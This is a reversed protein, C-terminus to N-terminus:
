PHIEEEAPQPNKTSIKTTKNPSTTHKEEKSDVYISAIVGLILTGVIILLSMYVPIYFIDELVMKLGVFGLVITLSHRLYRFKDLIAALAFYLSRLGLIAFINSTFVIFGDTTVALIAPISDLAFMLDTSEIIILVLFLPTMSKLKGNERLFFKDGHYSECVPFYARVMKLLRNNEIEVEQEGSEVYMKYATYILFAGFVYSLWSFQHILAVGVGILTGRMILAGLIGWFLVRHQYINPVKFYSFILAIVFINDLSLSKELLYGTLFQLAADKGSLVQSSNDQIGLFNYEYIYYVGINFILATAIWIGTWILAEKSSIQKNKKHFVGLDLALFFFVMIFFAIWIGISM